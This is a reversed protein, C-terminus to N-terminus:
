LFNGWSGVKHLHHTSSYEDNEKILNMIM